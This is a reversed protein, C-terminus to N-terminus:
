KSTIILLFKRTLFNNNGERLRSLLRDNNQTIIDCNFDYNLACFLVVIYV